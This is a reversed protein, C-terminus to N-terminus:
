RTKLSFQKIASGSIYEVTESTVSVVISLSVSYILWKTSPLVGLWSIRFVLLPFMKLRGKPFRICLFQFSIVIRKNTSEQITSEKVYQWGIKIRMRSNKVLNILVNCSYYNLLAIKVQIFVSLILNM